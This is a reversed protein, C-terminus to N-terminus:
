QGRLANIIRAAEAADANRMRRMEIVNDNPKDLENIILVVRKVVASRETIIISNSGVIAAMVAGSPLFPALTALLEQSALTHLPIIQTIIEDTEAIEDANRGSHLTIQKAAPYTVAAPAAGWSGATIGAVMLFCVIWTRRM